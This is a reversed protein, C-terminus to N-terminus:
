NLTESGLNENMYKVKTIVYLPQELCRFVKMLM